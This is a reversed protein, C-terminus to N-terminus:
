RRRVPPAPGAARVMRVGMVLASGCACPKLSGLSGPVCFPVEYRSQYPNGLRTSLQPGPRLPAPPSCQREPPHCLTLAACWCCSARTSSTTRAARWAGAGSWWVRGCGRAPREPTRYLAGSPAPGASAGADQRQPSPHRRSSGPGGALLWPAAHAFHASLTLGQTRM